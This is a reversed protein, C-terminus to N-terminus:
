SLLGLERAFGHVPNDWGLDESEGEHGGLLSPVPGSILVVRLACVRSLSSQPCVFRLSVLLRGLTFVTMGLPTPIHIKFSRPM